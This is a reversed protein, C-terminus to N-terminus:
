AEEVVAVDLVDVGVDVWLGAAPRVWPALAPMATPEMAPKAMRPREAEM